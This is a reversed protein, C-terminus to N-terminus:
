AARQQPEAELREPAASGHARLFVLVLLMLLVARGWTGIFTGVKAVGFDQGQDLDHFWSFVSFYLVADFALFAAWWGTGIRLLVFFPLLWLTFQPSYAKNVVMFICLFAGCVQLFPYSGSRRSLWYGYSATAVFLTVLLVPILSNLQETSLQRFGWYWISNSSADASRDRQFAYPAFWGDANAVALPVNLAALVGTAALGAKVASSLDGARVRHLVLPLVLFAPWLKLCGGVALAASSWVYREHRFLHFAAATAAVVPIDWNHFSYWVLAPAAAYLLARRGSMRFLAYSTYFSFPALLLASLALYQGHGNAVLAPLWALVGTLVPYEVTGGTLVGDEYTAQLYPFPHSQELGRNIYLLQLDNNCFRTNAYANFDGSCQAKLAFGLATLLATAALVAALPHKTWLAGIQKM